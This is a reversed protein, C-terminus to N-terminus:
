RSPAPTASTLWIQCKYAHLEQEAFFLVIGELHNSRLAGDKGRRVKLSSGVMPDLVYSGFVTPEILSVESEHIGLKRIARQRLTSLMKRLQADISEDSPRGAYAQYGALGGGSMAILGLLALAAEGSLLLLAGVVVTIIYPKYSVIKFYKENDKYPIQDGLHPASM